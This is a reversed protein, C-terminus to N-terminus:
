PEKAGSLWLYQDFVREAFWDEHILARLDKEGNEAMATFAVFGPLRDLAARIRPREAQYADRWARYYAHYDGSELNANERQLAHLTRSDYIVFPARRYMWLLKSAASINHHSKKGFNPSAALGSVRSPVTKPTIYKSHEALLLAVRHGIKPEAIGAFGRSVRFHALVARISESNPRQM